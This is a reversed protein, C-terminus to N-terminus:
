RFPLTDQSYKLDNSHLIFSLLAYYYSEQLFKLYDKFVADELELESLMNHTMEKIKKYCNLKTKLKLIRLQIKILILRSFHCVTM